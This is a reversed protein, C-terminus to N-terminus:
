FIIFFMIPSLIFLLMFPSRLQRYMFKQWSSLRNYDTTSLLDIYGIKIDTKIGFHSHHYLHGARWHYYPTLTVLSCLFGITNNITKSKFLNGHGCEHQLIFIRVIILSLPIIILIKLYWLSSYALCFFCAFYLIFTVSVEYCSRLFSPNTYRENLKKIVNKHM